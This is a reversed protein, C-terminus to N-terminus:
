DILRNTATPYSTVESSSSDKDPSPLRGRLEKDKYEVSAERNESGEM